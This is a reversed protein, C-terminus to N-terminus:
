VVREIASALKPNNEELYGRLFVFGVVAVLAFVVAGLPGFRKVGLKWASWAVALLELM